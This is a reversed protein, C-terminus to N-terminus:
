PLKDIIVDQVLSLYSVRCLRSNRSFFFSTSARKLCVSLPVADAYGTTCTACSAGARTGFWGVEFRQEGAHKGGEGCLQCCSIAARRVTPLLNRMLLARVARELTGRLPAFADWRKKFCVSAVYM